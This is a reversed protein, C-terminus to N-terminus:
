FPLDDDLTEVPEFSLEAAKSEFDDCCDHTCRRCESAYIDRLVRQRSKRFCEELHKCVKCQFCVAIDYDLENENM